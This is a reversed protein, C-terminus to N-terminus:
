SRMNIGGERVELFFCVLFQLTSDGDAVFNLYLNVSVACGVRINRLKPLQVECLCPILVAKVMLRKPLFM